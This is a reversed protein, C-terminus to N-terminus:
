LVEGERKWTTLINERFVTSPWYFPSILLVLIGRYQHLTLRHEIENVIKGDERFRYVLRHNTVIHYPIITASFLSLFLNAFHLKPYPYDPTQEELIVELLTHSNKDEKYGSDLIKQEIAQREGEFFSFGTFHFKVPLIFLSNETVESRTKGPFAACNVLLISISFLLPVFQM